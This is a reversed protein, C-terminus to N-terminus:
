EITMQIDVCDFQYLLEDKSVAQTHSKGYYFTDAYCIHRVWAFPNDWKAGMHQTEYRIRQVQAMLAKLHYMPDDRKLLSEPEPSKRIFRVIGPYIIQRFIFGLRLGPGGRWAEPHCKLIWAWMTYIHSRVSRPFCKKHILNKPRLERLAADLEPIANESSLHVGKLANLAQDILAELMALKQIETRERDRMARNLGSPGKSGPMLSNEGWQLGYEQVMELWFLDETELYYTTDAIGAASDFAPLRRVGYCCDSIQAETKNEETTDLREQSLPDAAVWDTNKPDRGIFRAAYLADWRRGFLRRGRLLRGPIIAAQEVLGVRASAPYGELQWAFYSASSGRAIYVIPRGDPTKQVDNWQRRYGDEHAAYGAEQVVMGDMLEAESLEQSNRIVNEGLQLLVTISEWDGEHRNAWDDYYYQFWYQLAVRRRIVDYPGLDPESKPPKEIQTEDDLPANGQLLRGYVVSRRTQPAVAALQKFYHQWHWINHGRFGPLDFGRIRQSLRQQVLQRPDVTQDAKRIEHQEVFQAADRVEESYSNPNWLLWPKRLIVRRRYRVKAQSLFFEVSRPHYSGRMTYIADGDDPYPAQEPSEPFLVLVPAFRRLLMQRENPLLYGLQDPM